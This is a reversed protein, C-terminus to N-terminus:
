SGCPHRVRRSSAQKGARRGAGPGQAQYDQDRAQDLDLDLIRNRGEATASLEGTVSANYCGFGVRQGSTLGQKQKIVSLCGSKGRLPRNRRAKKTTSQGWHLVLTVILYGLLRINHPYMLVTLLTFMFVLFVQFSILIHSSCFVM